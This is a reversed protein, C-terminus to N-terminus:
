YGTYHLHNYSCEDNCFANEYPNWGWTIKGCHPCNGRTKGSAKSQRPTRYRVGGSTIMKRKNINCAQFTDRSISELYSALWITTGITSHTVAFRYDVVRAKSLDFTTGLESIFKIDNGDYEGNIQIICKDDPNVPQGKTEDLHQMDVHKVAFKDVESKLLMLSGDQRDMASQAQEKTYTELNKLNTGYGFEDKNHFMVNSGVNGHRCTKYFLQSM